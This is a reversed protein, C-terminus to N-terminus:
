TRSSNITCTMSCGIAANIDRDAASLACDGIQPIVSGGSLIATSKSCSSICNGGGVLSAARCSEGSGNGLWIDETHGAYNLVYGNSTTVITRDIYSCGTTGCGVM